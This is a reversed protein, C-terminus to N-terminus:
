DQGGKEQRSNQATRRKTSLISLFLPCGAMKRRLAEKDGGLPHNRMYSGGVTIRRSTVTLHQFYDSISLQERDAKQYMEEGWFFKNEVRKLKKRATIM